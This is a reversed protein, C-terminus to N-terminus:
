AEISRGQPNWWEYLRYEGSIREPKLLRHVSGIYQMGCKELVKGCAPNLVHHRSHIRQFGAQQFAFGLVCRCAETILGRNWLSRSLLFHISASQEAEDHEDLYVYGVPQGTAKLVVAWHYYNPQAYAAIWGDILNETVHVDKHPEWSWFRAVEPDSAWNEYVAQADSPRYRRLILRQTELTQTGLDRM